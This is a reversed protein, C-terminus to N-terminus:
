CEAVLKLVDRNGIEYEPLTCFGVPLIDLKINAV